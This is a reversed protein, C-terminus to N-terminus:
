ACRSSTEEMREAAWLQNTVLGNRKLTLSRKTYREIKEKVLAKTKGSRLLEVAETYSIRPVAGPCAQTRGSGKGTSWSRRVIIYLMLPVRVLFDEALTMNMDLDYFAMEPRIM